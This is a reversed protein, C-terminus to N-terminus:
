GIHIKRQTVSQISSLAEKVSIDLLCERRCSLPGRRSLHCPSCSVKKYLVHVRGGRPSWVLPDSPGFLVVSPCKVASAMHAVGSDNGIFFEAGHLLAALGSLKPDEVVIRDRGPFRTTSEAPGKIWVIANGQKRLIEAVAAFRDFPWNKTASGSGAHIVCYPQYEPIWASFARLLSEPIHIEPIRRPLPVDQPDKFLSIHYDVIHIRGSPFPPQDYVCLGSNRCHGAMPSEPSSFIIASSYSSFFEATKASPEPAVLPAYRALTVDVASDICGTEQAFLGIEPRGLLTLADNPHENKWVSLAPLITIFDGLAGTHYVLTPM